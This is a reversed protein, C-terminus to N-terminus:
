RDQESYQPRYHWSINYDRRANGGVGVLWRFPGPVFLFLWHFLPLYRPINIVAKRELMEPLLLSPAYEGRLVDLLLIGVLCASVIMTFADRPFTVPDDRFFFYWCYYSALVAYVMAATGALRILTVLQRSFTISILGL